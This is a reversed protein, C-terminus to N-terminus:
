RNSWAESARSVCLGRDREIAFDVYRKHVDLRANDDDGAARSESMREADRREGKHIRDKGGRDGKGSDLVL